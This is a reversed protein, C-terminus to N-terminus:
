LTIMYPQMQNFSLIGEEELLDILRPFIKALARADERALHHEELPIGFYHALGPLRQTDIGRIVKRSIKLTDITPNVLKLTGLRRLERNIMRLDFHANHAVLVADGIFDFLRPLVQEIAPANELFATDIVQGTLIKPFIPRGPNVFSHFEEAMKLHVLKCAAIEIIHPSRAHGIIEVDLVVYEMDRLNRDASVTEALGWREEGLKCFRADNRLIVEVMKHALDASLNRIEFVRDAIEASSLSGQTARLLNYIEDALFSDRVFRPSNAKNEPM